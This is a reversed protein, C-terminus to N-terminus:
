ANFSYFKIYNNGAVFYDCEKNIFKQRLANDSGLFGDAQVGNIYSQTKSRKNMVIYVANKSFLKDQPVDNIEKITISEKKNNENTLDKFEKEVKSNIFKEYAKDSLLIKEIDKNEKM